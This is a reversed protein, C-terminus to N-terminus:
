RIKNLKREIRKQKKDLKRLGKNTRKEAKRTRKDGNFAKKRYSRAQRAQKLDQPQGAWRNHKDIRYSVGIGVSFLKPTIKLSHQLAADLQLKDNFLFAVGTGLTVDRLLPSDDLQYEGFFSWRDRTSYTLTGIVKKQQIDATIYRMGINHVLVIGPKIHQQLILMATPSVTPEKISRYNLDFLHHFPEQYPYVGDTAFQVGAYVSVVPILDRWRIRNNAHYSYISPKYKDTKRFPDYILYKVGASFDRLGKRNLTHKGVANQYRLEDLQYDVTGLLELQEKFLGIRLQIRTGLGLFSANYFSNYNGQRLSLGQEWQYVNKGVGFAGMSQSPRNSNIVETYQAHSFTM